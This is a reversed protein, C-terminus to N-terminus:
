SVDGRFIGFSIVIGAIISALNFYFLGLGTLTTGIVNAATPDSYMAFFATINILIMIGIAILGVYASSYLSLRANELRTAQQNLKKLTIAFDGGYALYLKTFKILKVMERENAREALEDLCSAFDLNSRQYKYVADKVFANLPAGTYDAAKQYSGVVDGSLTFFGILSTLFGHYNRRIRRINFIRLLELLLWPSFSALLGFGVSIALNKTVAMLLLLSVVLFFLGSFVLFVPVSFFPLYTDVASGKILLEIRRYFNYGELRTQLRGFIRAWALPRGKDM